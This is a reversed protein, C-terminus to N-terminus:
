PASHVEMSLFHYFRIAFLNIVPAALLWYWPHWYISALTVWFTCCLSCSLAYKINEHVAAFLRVRVSALIDSYNLLYFCFFVSLCYEILNM